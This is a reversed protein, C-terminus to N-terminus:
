YTIELLGEAIARLEGAPIRALRMAVELYKVNTPQGIFEQIESPLQRYHRWAAQQQNWKGVQGEQADLFHDIPVNLHEALLELEVLPIPKQGYEYDSLQTSSCGLVDTLDKQSLGADLRAKRLLAGVIRHRLAVTELLPASEGQSTLEPEGEWFHAPPTDLVFALVELEPLSIAQRGDEYASITSVPVGLASACEQKTMEARDRADRLLLGVIRSRLALREEAM